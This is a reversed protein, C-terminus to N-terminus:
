RGGREQSQGELIVPGTENIQSLYIDSDLGAEAFAQQMATGVNQAKEMSACLSFLSPGSGSISCGLAGNEVAAEKVKAFGPILLGRRPEAVVDQLSRSLLELDGEYLAAVLAALNGRPPEVVNLLVFVRLDKVYRRLTNASALDAM